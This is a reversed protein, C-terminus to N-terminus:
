GGLREEGLVRALRRERLLAGLFGLRELGVFAALELPRHEPDLVDVREALDRRVVAEIQLVPEPPLGDAAADTEAAAPAVVEEVAVRAHQEAGADRRAVILHELRVERQRVESLVADLETHLGDIAM